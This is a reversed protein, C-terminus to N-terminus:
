KTSFRAQEDNMPGSLVWGLRTHIATPGQEGKIVCGTVLKWYQDSGILVDIHANENGTIPDALQLNSLHNYKQQAEIVTQKIVPSCIVPVSYATMNINEGAQTMLNFKVAQCDTAKNNTSGFAQIIMPETHEIPLNLELAVRQVIYSRQSGSDLIIRVNTNVCSNEKSIRATATQLLIPTGSNVHM